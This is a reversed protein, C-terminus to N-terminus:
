RSQATVQVNATSLIMSMLRTQDAVFKAKMGLANLTAAALFATTRTAVEDVFARIVM